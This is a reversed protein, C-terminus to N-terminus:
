GAEARAKLGNIEMDIYRQTLGRYFLWLVPKLLGGQDLSLTVRSGNGEPEVRHGAASHTGGSRVRWEFFRGPELQSVTWVVTPLKPQRIRARSGVAFTGDLLEVSTISATWEHWREVDSMIAWVRGATAEIYTSTEFHM